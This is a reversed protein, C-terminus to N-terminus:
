KNITSILTSLYARISLNRNLDKLISQKLELSSNNMLMEDWKIFLNKLESNLGDMKNALEIKIEELANQLITKREDNTEQDYEQSKEQLEMVEMLIEPPIKKKEESTEGWELRLLYKARLIPDRLVQYASNLFSSREVSIEKEIESGNSYYDPHYEKSLEYFRHELEDLDLNLQKKFGLFSFYDVNEVMPLIKHCSPCKDISHVEHHCNWCNHIDVAQESREM